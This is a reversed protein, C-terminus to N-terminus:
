GDGRQSPGMSEKALAVSANLRPPHRIQVGQERAVAELAEVLRYIGGKIYYGGLGYEIYPIINLPRRHKSRIQVTTLPTGTLFNFSARIRFFVHYVGTFRGFRILKISDSSHGFIGLRM